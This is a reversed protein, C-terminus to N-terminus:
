YSYMVTFVTLWGMPQDTPYGSAYTAGDYYDRRLESVRCGMAM